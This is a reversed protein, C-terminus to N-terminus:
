GALTLNYLGAIGRMAHHVGDGKLRRDRLVKGTKMRTFAHEIRAQVQKTPSTPHRSGAPPEEGNRRHHPMVPGTGPHDGDAITRTNGVAAKVRSEEGAKGDGRDGPLPRGVVVVLRTGADIVIQHNASYRYNKPQEAGTHDRTPVLAGDVIFM